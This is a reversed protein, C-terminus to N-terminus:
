MRSLTGRHREGIKGGVAHHAADAGEDAVGAPVAAEGLLLEGLPQAGALAGDGADLLAALVEGELQEAPQGRRQLALQDVEARGAGGVQADLAAARQAAADDDLRRLVGGDGQQAGGQEVAAPRRQAVHGADDLHLADEVHQARDADRGGPVLAPWSRVSTTGSSSSRAPMSASAARRVRLMM